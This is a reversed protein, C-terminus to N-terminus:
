RWCRWAEGRTLPNLGWDDLILLQVKTLAKMTELYSGDGRGLALESLLRGLRHYRVRYGMVCARHGLACALYTKGM